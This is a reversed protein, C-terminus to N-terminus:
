SKCMQLATFEGSGWYNVGKSGSKDGSHINRLVIKQEFSSFSTFIGGLFIKSLVILTPTENIRKWYINCRATEANSISFHDPLSYKGKRPLANAKKTDYRPSLSLSETLTIRRKCFKSLRWLKKFRWFFRWVIPLNKWRVNIWWFVLFSVCYLNDKTLGPGQRSTCNKIIGWWPLGEHNCCRSTKGCIGGMALKAM